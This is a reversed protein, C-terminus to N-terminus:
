FYQEEMTRKWYGPIHTKKEKNGNDARIYGFLEKEQMKEPLASCDVKCFNCKSRPSELHIRRALTTKGTGLEGKILVALDTQALKEALSCIQLMCDSAKPISEIKKDKQFDRRYLINEVIIAAHHLAIKLTLLLADPNLPRTVYTTAGNKIAERAIDIKKNDTIVIIPLLDHFCHISTVLEHNLKDNRPFDIFVLDCPEERIADIAKVPDSFSTVDYSNRALLSNLTKCLSKDQSFVMINSM